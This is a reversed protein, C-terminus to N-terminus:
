PVHKWIRRLKIQSILSRSVNFMQVLSTYSSSSYRIYMVQCPKLVTMGNRSGIPMLKNFGAHESNEKHTVWELNNITNDKKDGNIHNVELSELPQTIFAQAVLRHVFFHRKDGNKSLIVQHYGNTHAIPKFIRTHISQQLLRGHVRRNIKRPLGMVRGFNSVQYYGEYGKVDRWEETM